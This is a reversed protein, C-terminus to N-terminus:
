GLCSVVRVDKEATVTLSFTVEDEKLAVDVHQYKAAGDGWRDSDAAESLVATENFLKLYEETVHDSSGEVKVVGDELLVARDCFDNVANMDHSVFVVTKKKGKLSRFYEYCKRQFAADGVALVEDVLLVDAEARTAVSFALRVQMGSSYNKLKQDMFEELEAFAVIDDYAISKKKQFDLCLM